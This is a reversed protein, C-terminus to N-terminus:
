RNENVYRSAVRMPSAKSSGGKFRHLKLTLKPTRDESVKDEVGVFDCNKEIVYLRLTLTSLDVVMQSTTRMNETDRVMNYPDKRNKFRKKMLGPAIADLTEIKSLHRHAQEKRSLSSIYDEGDTYGADEYEIGHNTYVRPFSKCPITKLVADHKSTMELAKSAKATSIITHGKIGGKYSKALACAEDLDKATLVKLIRAGDESKKGISKVKKKEAEDHGVMLASNVVGIGHENLGEVWGTETDEMYLVEVDDIVDHVVRIKPTYNRDRNKLLFRNGKIDGVAIICSERRM